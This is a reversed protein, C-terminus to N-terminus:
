ANEGYDFLVVKDGEETQNLVEHVFDAMLELQGAFFISAALFQPPADDIQEKARQLGMLVGEAFSRDVELSDVEGSDASKYRRFPTKAKGSGSPERKTSDKARKVRRILTEAGEPSEREPRDCSGMPREDREQADRITEDTGDVNEM